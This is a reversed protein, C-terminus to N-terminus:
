SFIQKIAAIGFTGSPMANLIHFEEALTTENDLFRFVKEAPIKKFLTSFIEEGTMKKESLVRLLINDYLRFRSRDPQIGTLDTIGKNLAGAIRESQKQIFQFTYGTSAKTQGGAAGIYYVGDKYFPFRHSTMPIIGYETAAIRFDSIKLQTAIYNGIADDYQGPLLASASFVTYEILAKDPSLPLMYMFVTGWQQSVSFDMFIAQEPDFRSIDTEILWGKFHQLLSITSKTKPFDRYVASFLFEAKVEKTETATRIVYRENEFHIEEVEWYAVEINPSKNIREFCYTYFDVARIMKYQYASADLTKSFAKSRFILQDWHKSVLPEFYGSGKEWFCWTRDNTDKKSKDILLIKKTCGPDNDMIRMLLSLGACGAGIIIYDYEGMM